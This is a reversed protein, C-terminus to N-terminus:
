VGTQELVRNSRLPAIGSSDVVPCGLAAGRTLAGHAWDPRCTLRPILHMPVQRQQPSGTLQGTKREWLLQAATRGVEDWPLRLYSMVSRTGWPLDDFCLIAPRQQAPVNAEDLALLLGEAAISNAVVVATVGPHGVLHDRSIQRAVGSQKPGTLDEQTRCPATPDPHYALGETSCGAAAMAEAWGIERERSWFFAEQEDNTAHLGLFAIKRHGMALLHQAAQRGGAIDDFRICDAQPAQANLVGFEVLPIGAPWWNSESLRAGIRCVGALPPLENNHQHERAEAETLRLSVGGLQAIREEFGIQVHGLYKDNEPSQLSVMLYVDFHGQPRGIFTGVRPVSYLVGEDILKQLLQGVLGVSLGYRQALVRQSLAVSGPATHGDRQTRRLDELLATKRDSIEQRTPM